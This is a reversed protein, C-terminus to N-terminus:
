WEVNNNFVIGGGLYKPVKCGDFICNQIRTKFIGSGFSFTCNEFTCNDFLNKYCNKMNISCNKFTVDRFVSLTDIFLEGNEICLDDFEVNGFLGRDIIFETATGTGEITLSYADEARKVLFEPINYKGERFLVYGDMLSLNEKVFEGHMSAADAPLYLDVATVDVDHKCTDKSVGYIKNYKGKRALIDDLTYGDLKNANEADSVKDDEIFKCITAFAGSNIMDILINLAKRDNDNIHLNSEEHEKLEEADAKLNIADLVKNLNGDGDQLLRSLEKFQKVADPMNLLNTYMENFTNKLANANNNIMNEVEHATPKNKFVELQSQTVFKHTADTVIKDADLEKVEMEVDLDVIKTNELVSLQKEANDSQNTHAESINNFHNIMADRLARIRLDVYEKSVLLQESGNEKNKLRYIESM